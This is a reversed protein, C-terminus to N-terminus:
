LVTGDGYVKGASRGDMAPIDNHLTLKIQSRLISSTSAPGSLLIPSVSFPATVLTRPPTTLRDLLRPVKPGIVKSSTWSAFQVKMEVESRLNSMVTEANAMIAVAVQSCM